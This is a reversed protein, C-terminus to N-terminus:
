DSGDSSDVTVFARLIGPGTASWTTWPLEIIAFASTPFRAALRHRAADDGEGSLVRALDGIGPNHGVVLLRTADADVDAIAAAIENAGAGYLAGEFRHPIDRGAAEILRDFTERTRRADSVLAFEPPLRAELSLGAQAAEALGRPSLGRAHDGTATGALAKAHRFLILHRM